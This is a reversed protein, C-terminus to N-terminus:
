KPQTRMIHRLSRWGDFNDFRGLGAEAVHEFPSWHGSTRLQECLREDSEVDPDTNDHKLYTVRCCRAVSRNILSMALGYVPGTVSPQDWDVLGWEAFTLYPLHTRREVPESEDIASHMMQALTQIEPQADDALRLRFFGDWDTATVLTTITLWPELYRNLWQKHITGSYREVLTAAHNALIRLDCEFDRQETSSLQDGAVMGKRNAAVTPLYPNNRVQGIMKQSPVARSSQSNRSFARHTLFQPHIYRPYTMALTTLRHGDAVSDLVVDVKYHPDAM